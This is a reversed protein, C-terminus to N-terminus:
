QIKRLGWTQLSSINNTCNELSLNRIKHIPNGGGGERSNESVTLCLNPDSNLSIKGNTNLSFKQNENKDCTKLQIMSSSEPNEVEMCVDFFPMYFENEQIRSQDFKQDFKLGIGDFLLFLNKRHNPM